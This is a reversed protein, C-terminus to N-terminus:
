TVNKNSRVPEGNVFIIFFVKGLDNIMQFDLFKNSLSDMWNILVGKFGWFGCFIIIKFIRWREFEFRLASIENM